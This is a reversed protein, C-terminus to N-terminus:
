RPPRAQRQLLVARRRYLADPRLRDGGRPRPRLHLRLRRLGQGQRLAVAFDIGPPGSNLMSENKAEVKWRKWARGGVKQGEEPRADAEVAAKGKDGAFPGLILWRTLVGLPAPTGSPGDGAPAPDCRLESLPSDAWRRWEVPPDADPYVGTGDGRWGVVGASLAAPLLLLASLPGAKPHATM